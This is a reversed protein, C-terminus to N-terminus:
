GHPVSMRPEPAHGRSRVCARRMEEHLLRPQVRFWVRRPPTDIILNDRRGGSAAASRVVTRSTVAARSAPDPAPEGAGDGGAVLAPVVLALVVPVPDGGVSGAALVAPLATGCALAVGDGAGRGTAGPAPARGCVPAKGPVSEAAKRLAIVSRHSATVLPFGRKAWGAKKGSAAYRFSFAM